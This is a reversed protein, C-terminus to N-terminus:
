AAEKLNRLKFDHLVRSGGESPVYVLKCRHKPLLISIRRRLLYERAAARKDEHPHPLPSNLFAKDAFDIM